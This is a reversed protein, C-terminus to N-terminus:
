SYTEVHAIHGYTKGSSSVKDYVIADTRYSLEKKLLNEPRGCDDLMEEYAKTMARLREVLGDQTNMEVTIDYPHVFGRWMGGGDKDQVLYVIIQPKSADIEGTHLLNHATITQTNM